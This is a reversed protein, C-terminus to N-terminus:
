ASSPMRSAPNHSSNLRTSKRDSALGTGGSRRILRIAPQSRARELVVQATRADTSDDVVIIEFSTGALDAVVDDLVGGIAEHEDLTCIVVSLSPYTQQDAPMPARPSAGRAGTAPLKIM